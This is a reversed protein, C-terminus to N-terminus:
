SEARIMDADEYVALVGRFVQLVVAILVSTCGAQIVLELKTVVLKATRMRSLRRPKAGRMLTLDSPEQM